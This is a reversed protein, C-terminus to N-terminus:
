YFFDKYGPQNNHEALAEIIIPLAVFTPEGSFPGLLKEDGHQAVWGLGGFFDPSLCEAKRM